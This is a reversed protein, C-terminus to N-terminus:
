NEEVSEAGPVLFVVLQVGKEARQAVYPPHLTPVCTAFQDDLPLWQRNRRATPM